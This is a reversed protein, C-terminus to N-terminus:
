TSGRPRFGFPASLARLHREALERARLLIRGPGLRERFGVLTPAVGTFHEPLLTVLALLVTHVAVVRRHISRVAAEFGLPAEVDPPHVTDVAAEISGTLEVAAVADEVSDLTGRFRAALFSPLLSISAGERPCWFRPILAGPPEVRPYTGLKEVGCGGEPHFPCNDLIAGEWACESVYQGDSFPCKWLVQVAGVRTRTHDSVRVWEKAGRM